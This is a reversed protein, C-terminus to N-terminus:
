GTETDIKSVLREIGHCQSKADFEEHRCPAAVENTIKWTSFSVVMGRVALNVFTVRVKQNSEATPAQTMYTRRSSPKGGYLLAGAGRSRLIAGKDRRNIAHMGM